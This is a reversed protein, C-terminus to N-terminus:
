DEQLAAALLTALVDAPPDTAAWEIAFTRALQVAYLTAEPLQFVRLEVGLFRDSTAPGHRDQLHVARAVLQAVRRGDAGIDVAATGSSWTLLWSEVDVNPDSGRWGEFVGCAGALVHRLASQWALGHQDDPLGSIPAFRAAWDLSTSRFAATLADVAVERGLWLPDLEVRDSMAM